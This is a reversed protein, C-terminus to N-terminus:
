IDSVRECAGGPERQKLRAVGNGRLSRSRLFKARQLVQLRKSVNRHHRVYLMRHTTLNWFSLCHWILSIRRCAALLPLPVSASMWNRRLQPLPHCNISPTQPQLSLWRLLLLQRSPPLSCTSHLSSHRCSCVQTTQPCTTTATNPGSRGRAKTTRM